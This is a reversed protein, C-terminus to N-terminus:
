RLRQQLAVLSANRPAKELGRRVWDAAADHDALKLSLAAIRGAQEAFGADDQPMFATYRLLADRAAAPHNQREALSAYLPFASLDTPYRDTAEQLVQEAHDVRGVRLLARGYLTLSESTATPSSGVRELAALAKNL